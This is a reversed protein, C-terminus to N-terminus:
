SGSHVSGEGQSGGKKRERLIEEGREESASARGPIGYRRRSRQQQIRTEKGPARPLQRKWREVRIHGDEAKKEGREQRAKRKKRGPGGEGKKREYLRAPNGIQRAGRFGREKERLISRLLVSEMDKAVTNKKQHLGKQRGGCTHLRFHQPEESRLILNSGGSWETEDQPGALPGESNGKGVEAVGGLLRERRVGQAQDRRCCKERGHARAV